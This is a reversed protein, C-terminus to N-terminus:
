EKPELSPSPPLFVNAAVKALVHTGSPYTINGGPIAIALIGAYPIESAALAITGNDKGAGSLKFGRLPVRVGGVDIYRAALVLKGPRGYVGGAAADIVVGGGLAGAQAIIVGNIVIPAALRLAFKDGIRDTKSSVEGVLAVEVVTGAAIVPAVPATAQVPPASITPSPASAAPAVSPGIPQGAAALVLVASAILDITVRAGWEGHLPKHKNAGRFLPRARPM